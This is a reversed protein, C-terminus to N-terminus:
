IICISSNTKFCSICINVVDDGGTLVHREYIKAFVNELLETAEDETLIGADTDHRFLPYLYQDIRGLAMAYRGEYCFALHCFWVLQLGEAFSQPARALLARCNRSIEGLRGADYGPTGSLSEALSAYGEIMSALASFATLALVLALVFSFTRKMDFKGM